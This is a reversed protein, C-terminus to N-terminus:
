GKERKKFKKSKEHKSSATISEDGESQNTLHRTSHLGISQNNASRSHDEESKLRQGRSVADGGAVAGEDFGEKIVGAKMGVHRLQGQSMWETVVGETNGHERRETGAKLLDTSKCLRSAKLGPDAIAAWQVHSGQQGKVEQVRGNNNADQHAGGGQAISM